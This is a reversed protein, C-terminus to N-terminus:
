TEMVFFTAARISAPASTVVACCACTHKAARRPPFIKWRVQLGLDSGENRFQPFCPGSAFLCRWTNACRAWPHNGYQLVDFATVFSLQLVVIKHRELIGHVGLAIEAGLVVGYRMIWSQSQLGEKTRDPVWTHRKSESFYGVKSSM